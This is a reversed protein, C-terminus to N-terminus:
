QELEKIEMAIVDLDAQLKAERSVWEDVAIQLYRNEERLRTVEAILQGIVGANVIFGRRYNRKIQEFQEDTM